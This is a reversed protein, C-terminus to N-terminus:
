FYDDGSHPIILLLLASAPHVIWDALDVSLIVEHALLNALVKIGLARHSLDIVHLIVASRGADEGALRAVLHVDLPLQELVGQHGDLLPLGLVPLLDQVVGDLHFREIFVDCSHFLTLLLVLLFLLFLFTTVTVRVFIQIGLQQFSNM